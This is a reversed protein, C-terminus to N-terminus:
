WYIRASLLPTRRLLRRNIELVELFTDEEIEIDDIFYDRSLENNANLLNIISFTFEAQLNTGKITPRYSIGIDLRSYDRLRLANPRGFEIFSFTEEIEGDEDFEIEEGIGTAQTFPLGTKFQYNLSFNWNKYQWTNVLSLKHRQDNSAPFANEEIESFLFDTKSLSYNLWINYASWRKKILFDLGMATSNGTSFDLENAASSSFTPNFTSLGETKNYYGEIDILWGKKHFVLGGAVKRASQVVEEEEEDIRNIIWVQNNLGLSNDGFEKLQSIYQQFIGGSLKLKLNKTLGYQINLRPSLRNKQSEVYFTNRLGGNLSLKKKQFSFGLHTNHFHGEITNFEQFDDEYIAELEINFNVAKINYDYGLSFSLHPSWQYDTSIFYTQDSINNTVFNNYFIMDDGEDTLFNNYDNNYDSNSYGLKTTWNPKLSINGSINLAESNFFVIDNSAFEDEFFLSQYNFDNQTKFWSAKMSLYNTPRFILKGNFDYFNLQQQAEREGEAVEEREEEIKTEQFVRNSYNVITPSNYLGNITNRASLTFSLKDTLVPFKFFGHAETLTSGIGGKFQNSISDSLSLDVIGGVRNDYRPDFVGKFVQIDDIVYPNIASIMGFLHGPDYLTVDEWVILNQDPTGGRIQLNTASEDISTVGPILQVTKLIDQDIITYKSLLKQYDFRVSNYQEGETIAQLIYDKVIIEEGFLAQNISLLIDPCDEKQWEQIMFSQAQYGIYSITILQHKQAEIIVEFYGDENSQTGQQHDDLFINALSLSTRSLNDKIYGCLRYQKPSELFILISKDSIEFTYPTKYLLQHLQIQINEAPLQGTFQFNALATPDYNFTWSSTQEIKQLIKDLETQEYSVQAYGISSIIFLFLILPIKM